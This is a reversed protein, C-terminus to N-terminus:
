HLRDSMDCGGILDGAAGGEDTCIDREEERDDGAAEEEFLDLLNWRAMEM